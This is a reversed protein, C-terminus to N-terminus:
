IFSAKGYCSNIEATRWHVACWVTRAKQQALYGGNKIKENVDEFPNFDDGDDIEIYLKEFKEAKKVCEALKEDIDYYSDGYASVAETFDDIFKDNLEVDPFKSTIGELFWLTTLYLEKNVIKVGNIEGEFESNIKADIKM